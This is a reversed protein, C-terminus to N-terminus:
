RQSIQELAALRKSFSENQVRLRENEAKLEKVAEILVATLKTYEVSKYGENNEAVLEPLVAEVEQAIVGIQKHSTKSDQSHDSEKWQFSIGRLKGVKDLAQTLPQINKKLQVDSTEHLTTCEIDGEVDLKYSPNITGVGLKGSKVAVNGGNYLYLHGDAISYGVACRYEGAEQFQVEVNGLSRSLAVKGVFYGAYNTGVSSGAYGYIDYNTDGGAAYGYVGYNTTGSMSWSAVGMNTSTGGEVSAHVGYYTESGTPRVSGLVGTHGGDFYGGIGVHDAPAAWGYM